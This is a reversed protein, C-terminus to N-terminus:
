DKRRFLYTTAAVVLLLSAFAGLYVDMGIGEPGIKSISITRQSFHPIYVFVQTSEDNQLAYYTEDSASIVNRVDDAMMLTRGDLEVKLEDLPVDLASDDLTLVVTKGEQFSAEARIRLETETSYQVEMDIPQYDVVSSVLNDDVADLYLEGAIRGEAIDSALSGTYLYNSRFYYRDGPQMQMSVQQNSWSMTGVGQLVLDGRFDEYGIVAHRESFIGGMLGSMQFSVTNVVNTQFSMIGTPVDYARTSGDESDILYAGDVIGPPSQVSYEALHVSDFVSFSKTEGNETTNVTYDYFAEEFLTFCVHKGCMEWSGDDHPIPDGTDASSNGISLVVLTASVALAAVLTRRMHERKFLISSAGERLSPPEIIHASYYFLRLCVSVTSLNYQIQYM